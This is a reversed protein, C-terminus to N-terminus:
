FRIKMYIFLIYECVFKKIIILLFKKKNNVFSLYIFVNIINSELLKKM